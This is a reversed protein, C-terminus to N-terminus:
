EEDRNIREWEKKGIRHNYEKEIQDWYIDFLSEEDPLKSMKYFEFLDSLIEVIRDETIMDIFQERLQDKIDSIKGIPEEKKIGNEILIEMMSKVINTLENSM